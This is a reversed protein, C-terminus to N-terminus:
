YWRGVLCAPLCAHVYLISTRANLTCIIGAKAISVTQQEMAQARAHPKQSHLTINNNNNNNHWVVLRTYCLM